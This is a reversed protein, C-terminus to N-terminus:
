KSFGNRCNFSRKAGYCARLIRFAAVGALTLSAALTIGAAATVGAAALVLPVTLSKRSM